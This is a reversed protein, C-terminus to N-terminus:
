IMYRIDSSFTPYAFHTAKLGDVNIGHAIALAFVHIIEAAGHGLISAGLVKGTGREVLVRSRAAREAYTRTSRWSAMDRDLVEVDLGRAIAAAESEGVTALTPLTYVCASVADYRLTKPADPHLLNYGVTGGEWTAVPSLQPTGPLADGAFWVRPNERSRMSADLSPRGRELTIGAKGLDLGEFSPVRGVANLVTDAEFVREVGGVEAVLALADGRREVRKTTAGTVTEIGLGDGVRVLDAVLLEDFQPLVRPALEVVTVKTGARALVHAFEMSIVGGGLFVARAPREPLELFADSTIMLAEGELGLSRPKSGVAVVVHRATVVTGGVEVTDEGVFRAQGRLLDIGRSTLSREFEQPVGEVFSTKRAMLAAWDLTAPGTAIGHQGARSIVDLAEAAAVLVKKPVCGRLPCTGGVDRSEAVAVRWGAARATNAAALGANGAGIVLLDYHETM